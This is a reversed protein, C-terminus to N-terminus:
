YFRGHTGARAGVVLAAHTGHPRSRHASLIIDTGGTAPQLASFTASSRQPRRAQGGGRVACWLAEGGSGCVVAGWPLCLLLPGWSNCNRMEHKSDEGPILVRSLKYGVRRVDRVSTQSVSEDLNASAHRRVRNCRLLRM